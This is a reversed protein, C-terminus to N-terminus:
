KNDKVCRVSFLYSEDFNHFDWGVYENSSDMYRNSAYSADDSWWYGYNGATGGGGDSYGFGGPL